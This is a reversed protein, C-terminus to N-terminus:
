NPSETPRKTSNVTSTKPWGILMQIRFQQHRKEFAEVSEDVCPWHCRDGDPLSHASDLTASLSLIPLANKPYKDPPNNTHVKTPLRALTPSLHADFNAILHLESHTATLGWNPWTMLLSADPSLVVFGDFILSKETPELM